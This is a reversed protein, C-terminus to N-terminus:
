AEGENQAEVDEDETRKRKKGVSSLVKSFFGKKEEAKSTSPASAGEGGM